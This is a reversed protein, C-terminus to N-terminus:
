SIKWVKVVAYKETDGFAFPVGFGNGTKTTICRHQLELVGEAALTFEGTLLASTSVAAPTNNMEGQGYMIVSAATINRFRVRHQDVRYAPASAEIYYKGAPLTIQNSGLSAGEIANTVVTNLVRTQWAGSTFTGSDVALAEQQEVHLLPAYVPLVASTETKWIKVEAYVEIVGLNVELGLGDTTKTTDCGHQLELVTEASLTFEGSLTSVTQDGTGAVCFSSSGIILDSADTINRLKIKHRQTRFAPAQAEILYQGAPLTFQNTALSAGIIENTVETNLIRTQWAGTTLTGGKTGSAKEDRLHMLYRRTGAAQQYLDTLFQTPM